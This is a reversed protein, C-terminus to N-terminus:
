AKGAIKVMEDYEYIWTGRKEQKAAAVMAKAVTEAPISRYKRLPGFLTLNL